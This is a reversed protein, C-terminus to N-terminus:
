QRRASQISSSTLRDISSVLPAPPAVGATHSGLGLQELTKADLKGSPNLGHGAQFKRVAEVTSSDWKGNPQSAYSGDKGLAQQIETIRDSSPAKQGKERRSSSRGAAQRSKGRQGSKTSTANSKTGSATGGRSSSPKKRTHASSQGWAAHACVGVGALLLLGTRANKLLLGLLEGKAKGAV